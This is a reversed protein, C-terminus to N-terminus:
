DQLLNIMKQTMPGISEVMTAQSSQMLEASLKPTTALLKAGVPTRYFAAIQHIEDVTFTKAYLPIAHELTEDVMKPDAVFEILIKNMEPLKPDIMAMAKKKQAADLRNNSNIAQELMPRLASEMGQGMQLMMEKMMSRYNMADFLERAATVAAPDIATATAPAPAQAYSPAAGTLAFATVVAAVIKKM